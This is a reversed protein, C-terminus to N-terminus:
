LDKEEEQNEQEEMRKSSIMKKCCNCFYGSAGCANMQEVEKQGCDPCIYKKMGMKREKSKYQIFAIKTGEREVIACTAM